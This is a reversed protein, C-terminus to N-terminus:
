AARQLIISQQRAFDIIDLSTVWQSIALRTQTGGPTGPAMVSNNHMGFVEGDILFGPCGSSGPYMLSDTEYYARPGLSVLASITASQFREILGFSFGNPTLTGQSLPFGLSGCFEGVEAPRESDLSSESSIAM